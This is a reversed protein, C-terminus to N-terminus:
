LESKKLLVFLKFFIQRITKVNVLYIIQNTLVTLFNKEFKTHKEFLGFKIYFSIHVVSFGHKRMIDIWDQLPSWYFVLNQLKSLTKSM